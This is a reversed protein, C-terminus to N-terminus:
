SATCSRCALCCRLTLCLLLESLPQLERCSLTILFNLEPYAACHCCRAVKLLPRHKFCQSAQGPMLHLNIQLLASFSEDGKGDFVYLLLKSASIQCVFAQPISLVLFRGWSIVMHANLQERATEPLGGTPKSASLQSEMRTLWLLFDEIEGHFGQAQEPVYLRGGDSSM